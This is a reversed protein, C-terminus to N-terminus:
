FKKLNLRKNKYIKFQDIMKAGIQYKKGYNSNFNL